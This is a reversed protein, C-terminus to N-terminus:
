SHWLPPAATILHPRQSCSRPHHSSSEAKSSQPLKNQKSPLWCAKTSSASAPQAHNFLELLWNLGSLLCHIASVKLEALAWFYWRACRLRILPLVCPNCEKPPPQIKIHTIQHSGSPTWCMWEQRTTRKGEWINNTKIVCNDKIYETVCTPQMRNTGGGM